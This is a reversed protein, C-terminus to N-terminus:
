KGPTLSAALTARDRPQKVRTLWVEHPTWHATESSFYRSEDRTVEDGPTGTISDHMSEAWKM